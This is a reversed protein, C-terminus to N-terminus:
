RLMFSIRFAPERENEIIIKKLAVSENKKRYFVKM